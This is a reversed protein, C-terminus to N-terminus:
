LAAQSRGRLREALPQSAQERLLRLEEGEIGSRRARKEVAYIFVL